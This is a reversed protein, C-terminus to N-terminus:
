YGPNQELEPNVNIENLPIPYILDNVNIEFSGPPPTNGPAYYYEQPNTNVKTGFDNMTEVALGKRVLDDWRKNEFALEIRREHLIIESLETQNANAIDGLGARSRVQNLYPLAEGSKGQENLSEAM